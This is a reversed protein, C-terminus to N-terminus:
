VKTLDSLLDTLMRGAVAQPEPNYEGREIREKLESVKDARVEPTQSLIERMKQVDKSGASLDVRDSGGSPLAVSQAAKEGKKAQVKNDTKIQPFFKTVKM